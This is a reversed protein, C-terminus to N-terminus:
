AFKEQYAPPPLPTAPGRTHSWIPGRERSLGMGLVAKGFFRRFSSKRTEVMDGYWFDILVSRRDDQLSQAANRYDEDDVFNWAM